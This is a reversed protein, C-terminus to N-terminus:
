SDAQTEGAPADATQLDGDAVKYGDRGSKKVAYMAEDARRVLTEADEAHRPYLAIGISAGVFCTTGGVDIGARVEDLIKEALTVLTQDNAVNEFLIVFEDGGLRAVLDTARVAKQLRAATTNLVKDGAEHGYTDNVNKFRDLDVFMVAVGNRNRNARLLAAALSREFMERNPLKTLADTLSLQELLAQRQKIVTIDSWIGVLGGDEVPKQRVIVWRGDALQDEDEGISAPAQAGHFSRLCHQIYLERDEGYTFLRRDDTWARLITEYQTGPTLLPTLKPYMQRFVRNSIVLQGDEDFLLFGDSISEIAAIMRRRSVGVMEYATSVYDDIRAAVIAIGTIVLSVVTVNAALWYRSHQGFDTVTSGGIAVCVAAEMAVYHMGSVALGMCAAGLIRPLVRYRGRMRREAHVDAYVAVIGLVVAVVVSLAFWDPDYYLLADMRVAAMGSYHMVGVGIGIIAGAAVKHGHSQEDWPREFVMLAIICGVIAPVASLFTTWGDYTIDVPLNFALMGIFHMAWVGTGMTVGAVALWALRRAGSGIAYRGLRFGAFGAIAAVVYSTAVLYLNYTAALPPGGLVDPSYFTPM